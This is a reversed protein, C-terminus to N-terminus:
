PLQERKRLKFEAVKWPPWTSLRSYSTTTLALVDMKTGNCEPCATEIGRTLAHCTLCLTFDPAFTLASHNTQYFARSILVAVQEPKLMEEMRWIASASGIIAGQELLGEIRLKELTGVRSLTSLKAANTYHIEAVDGNMALGFQEHDLKALRHPATLDHSQSLIFRAKHKASLREAEAKLHAIVHSAFEQAETSEGLAAGVITQALESLGIPCISHATWNLRLFPENDPRMALMALVGAEGRALLKELFVRKELSAQAALELLETLLEFIKIRDTEAKYGIRPLNLAVSSFVSARWQWSEKARSLVIPDMGYRNTFTTLAEDIEPSRDFAFTVGGREIAVRSALDLFSRYGPNDVFRSTVHLIPRPGVLPLGQGDGELYVEFLANLFDRAVEGFEGYTEQLQEGGAGIAPKDRLYNPADWDLHLDCRLPQGGRAVAPTSLDFLLAQAVQKKEEHSLGALLPAFAFNVSDWAIAESFYGHLSATYKVLHSALVEPRRAPRSGSFGGPLRIGHRKIFDISGIMRTLRDIQGLNEIHLDGCLHANAVRESFVARMAYERKIAEALAFSTGEPGLAAKLDPASGQIIQDADFMPVGLRSHWRHASILGRELLKADVLGRILPATLAQINLRQIQAKVDLSIQQAVDPALKSERVLADAIRQVDFQALNEDSRRVLLEAETLEPDISFNTQPM